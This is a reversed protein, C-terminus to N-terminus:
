DLVGFIDSERLILFEQGQFFIKSGSHESFVVQDGNKVAMPKIKGKPNRHGRGVALVKGQLSGTTNTASDPIFLGGATKKEGSQVFVILRDDLPTVFDSLPIAKVPKINQVNVANKAATKLTLPKKASKSKSAVKTKKAPKALKKAVKKFKVKQTSAKKAAVKKVATKKKAVNRGKKKM